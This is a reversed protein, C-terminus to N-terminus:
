SIDVLTYNANPYKEYLCKTLLGTGAGLDLIYKFDNNIKSLFAISTCYYDDFCPIFLRRQEDYKKAVEDFRESIEKNEVRIEGCKMKHGFIACLM